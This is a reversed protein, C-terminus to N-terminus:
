ACHYHKTKERHTLYTPGFNRISWCVGSCFKFLRFLSTPTESAEACVQVFNLCGSFPPLLNRHFTLVCGAPHLSGFSVWKPVSAMIVQYKYENQVFKDRDSIFLM